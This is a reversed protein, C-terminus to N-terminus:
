KETSPFFINCYNSLKVKITDNLIEINAYTIYKCSLSCLCAKWFFSFTVFTLKNCCRSLLYIRSHYKWSKWVGKCMCFYVSINTNLWMYLIIIKTCLSRTEPCKAFIIDDQKEQFCNILLTLSITYQSFTRLFCFTIVNIWRLRACCCWCLLVFGYIVWINVSNHFQKLIFCM